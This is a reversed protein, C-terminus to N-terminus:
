RESREGVDWPDVRGRVVEVPDGLDPGALEVFVGVFGAGGVHEFQEVGPVVSVVCCDEGLRCRSGERPAVGVEEVSEPVFRAAGDANHVPLEDPVAVRGVVGGFEDFVEACVADVVLHPDREQGFESDLVVGGPSAEQRGLPADGEAPEADTSADDGVSGRTRIGSGALGRVGSRCSGIVWRFAWRCWPSSIADIVAVSAFFAGSKRAILARLVARAEPTSPVMMMVLSPNWGGGWCTCTCGSSYPEMSSDASFM